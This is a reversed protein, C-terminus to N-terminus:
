PLAWWIHRDKEGKPIKEIKGQKAMAELIARIRKAAERRDLTEPRYNPLVIEVFDRTKYFPLVPKPAHRQREAFEQRRKLATLIGGEIDRVWVKYAEKGERGQWRFDEYTSKPKRPGTHEKFAQILGQVARDVSQATVQRYDIKALTKEKAAEYEPTGARLGRPLPAWLFLMGGFHSPLVDAEIWISGYRKIFTTEDKHKYKRRKGSRIQKWGSGQLIQEVEYSGVM